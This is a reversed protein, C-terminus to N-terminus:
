NERILGLRAHKTTWLVNAHLKEVKVRRAASCSKLKPGRHTTVAHQELNLECQVCGTALTSVQSGSLSAKVLQCGIFPTKREVTCSHM